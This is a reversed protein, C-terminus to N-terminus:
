PLLWMACDVSRGRESGSKRREREKEELIIDDINGKIREKMRAESKKLKPTAASAPLVTVALITGAFAVQPTWDM